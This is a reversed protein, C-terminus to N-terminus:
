WLQTKSYKKLVLGNNGKRDKARQILYQNQERVYKDLSQRLIDWLILAILNYFGLQGLILFSKKLAGM